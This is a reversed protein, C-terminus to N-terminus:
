QGPSMDRELAARAEARGRGSASAACALVRTASETDSVLFLLVDGVAFARAWPGRLVTGSLSCSHEAEKFRSPLTRYQHLHQSSCEEKSCFSTTNSSEVVRNSTFPRGCQWIPQVPEKAAKGKEKAGKEQKVM